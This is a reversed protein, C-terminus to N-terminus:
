ENLTENYDIETRLKSIKKLDNNFSDKLTYEDKQAVINGNDDYYTRIGTKYNFTQNGYIGNYIDREDFSNLQIEITLPTFSTSSFIVNQTPEGIFLNITNTSTNIPSVSVFVLNSNDNLRYRIGNRNQSNNLSTSIPEVKYHSTIIRQMNPIVKSPLTNDIYHFVGGVSKNNTQFYARTNVPMENLDFILGREDTNELFSCDRIVFRHKKPRIQFTYLGVGRQIYFSSPIVLKYIGGMDEGIFDPSDIQRIYQIPDLKLKETIDSFNDEQYFFYLDIDNIDVYAPLVSGYIVSM